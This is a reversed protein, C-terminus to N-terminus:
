FFASEGYLRLLKIPLLPPIFFPLFHLPPTTPTQFAIQIKQCQDRYPLFSNISILPSAEHTSISPLHTLNESACTNRSLARFNSPVFTKPAAASFTPCQTPTPPAPPPRRLRASSALPYFVFARVSPRRESHKDKTM